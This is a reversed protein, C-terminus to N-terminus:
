SSVKHPPLGSQGSSRHDSYPSTVRGKNKVTGERMNLRSRANDREEETIKTRKNELRELFSSMGKSSTSTTPRTENADSDAFSSQKNKKISNNNIKSNQNTVLSRKSNMYLKDVANTNENRDREYLGTRRTPNSEPSLNRRLRSVENIPKPSLLRKKKPKSDSLVSKDNKSKEESFLQSEITPVCKLPFLIEFSSIIKEVIPCDVPLFDKCIEYSKKHM